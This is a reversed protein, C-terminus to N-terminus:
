GQLAERVMQNILKGDARGKVRNIVIKMTNGLRQKSDLDKTEELAETIIQKIEDDSLKEPLYSEIIVKEKSEIEVLDERGGKHYQEISDARQKASSILVGTLEDETLDRNKAIELESIKARLLRITNLRIKDGSKMAVKMDSLLQEKLNM